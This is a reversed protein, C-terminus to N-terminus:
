SERKTDTVKVALQKGNNGPVGHGITRGEVVIRLPHAAGHRLEIVDGIEMSYIDRPRVTISNLQVGVDLPVDNMSLRLRDFSIRAEEMQSASPDAAAEGAKLPNLLADAAFMMTAATTREAVTLAFTAILVAENAPVAQVFQPNYQIGRLSPTMPTISSFAYRMDALSSELLSKFLATEIETLERPNEERELGPGGLIYDIWIMTTPSPIQLISTSRTEDATFLVLTTHPDLTDIYEAYTVMELKDLDIQAMVRLRSTLQTAWQRAFTEFAMEVIRAHERAITMPRRFDYPEPPGNRHRRTTTDPATVGGVIPM